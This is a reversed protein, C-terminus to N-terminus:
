QNMERLLAELGDTYIRRGEEGLHMFDQFLNPSDYNSDDIGMRELNDLFYTYEYEESVEKMADRYKDITGGGCDHEFGSVSDGVEIGNSDVEQYRCYTISSLVIRANPCQKHIREVCCRLAGKYTSEDRPDENEILFGTFYDNMGYHLIVYDMAPYDLHTLVLAKDKIDSGSEELFERNGTMFSFDRTEIMKSLNFLSCMGYYNSQKYAKSTNAACTGGIACNFAVLDMRESLMEPIETGGFSYDINSDGLFLVQPKEQWMAPFIVEPKQLMFRTMIALALLFFLVGAVWATINSQGSKNKEKEM